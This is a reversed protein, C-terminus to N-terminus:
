RSSHGLARVVEVLFQAAGLPVSCFLHIAVLLPWVPLRFRAVLLPCLAALCIGVIAELPTLMAAQSFRENSASNRNLPPLFSLCCSQFAFLVIIAHLGRRTRARGDRLLSSVTRRTWWRFGGTETIHHVLSPCWIQTPANSIRSWVRRISKM